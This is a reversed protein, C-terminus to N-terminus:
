PPDDNGSVMKKVMRLKMFDIPLIKYSIGVGVFPSGLVKQDYLTLGYGAMLSIAWPSEQEHITNSIITEQEDLEYRDLNPDYGSVWMRLRGDAEEYYKQERPLYVYETPGPVPVEVEVSDTFFLCRPIAIMGASVTKVPQPFDKYVPVVKTITDRVIEPPEVRLRSYQYGALFSLCLAIAIAVVWIALRRSDSREM